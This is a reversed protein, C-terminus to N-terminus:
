SCAQFYLTILCQIVNTETELRDLSIHDFHLKKHVVISLQHVLDSDKKGLIWAKCLEHIIIIFLSPSIKQYFAFILYKLSTFKVSSSDFYCVVSPMRGPTSSVSTCRCRAAATGARTCRETPPWPAACIQSSWTHTAASINRTTTAFRCCLQM